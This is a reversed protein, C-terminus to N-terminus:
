RIIKNKILEDIEIDNFGLDELISRSNEGIKPGSGIKRIKANYFKIPTNVMALEKEPYKLIEFYENDWAQKDEITEEWLALKDCPIDYERFIKIWEELTRKLLEKEIIRIILESNEKVLNYDTFINNELLDFRSIAKFFREYGLSYVAFAIQIWRNNKTKYVCQLPNQNDYRSKPYSNGFQSSAIMYSMNYLGAHFLSTTVRDGMGSRQREIYAALIGAALYIGAQFDGFGPVTVIPSTGKEYLTGSIGARSYYATFDFGAKTADDGKDGYGTIHGYILSPFKSKISDYDFGYKKLSTERINTIFIDADEILRNLVKAGESTTYDIMLSKKNSNMMDFGPNFGESIPLDVMAGMEHMPDGKPSEVKIVKAGWDSLLRACTPAAIFTAMEVVKLGKLPFIM